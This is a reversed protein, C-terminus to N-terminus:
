GHYDTKIQKNFYTFVIALSVKVMYYVTAFDRISSKGGAREKMEVSIEAISLGANKYMLISEPEPYEDPYYEAVVQLANRNLMRFGSTCDTIRLGTFLRIIFGLYRIGTRRLWSSQFGSRRIYRSGILVDPANDSCMTRVFQPVETAPHQGDGDMQMAYDCGNEFAYIFGTQVAGGIGLNCPLDLLVCDLSRAIEATRDASCDNVVVPFIAVDGINGLRHIADVVEAIAHEENYAPIVIALKKL